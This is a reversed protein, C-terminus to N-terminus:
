RTLSMTRVCEAAPFVTVIAGAGEGRAKDARGCTIRSKALKMRMASSTIMLPPMTVWAMRYGSKGILTSSNRLIKWLAQNESKRVGM